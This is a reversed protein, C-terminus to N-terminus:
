AVEIGTFRNRLDHKQVKGMANRPLADVFIVAKPHKFRALQGDFAAIIEGATLSSGPVRAVVAIPVAGWRADPRGIVAAEAIGDIRDLVAELEAPYINEGGSIVVDHKRDKITIDGAADRYGIDGTRFWRDRFAAATAAPDGWYERALNAGRLWLEGPEGIARDRGQDDVIRVRTHLGARGTSGTTSGVNGPADAIRQYAAVPGSETLGYVQIVPVGRDHFVRILSVPVISSGTTLVRLSSLDTGTWEPHDRLAAITAPVLVLLSPRDAAIADLTAKPDFGRHVTVTAGVYLAPTTQINLGGVHFMPLVTLVHDASTLDHMHVSNLANHLVAQQTLVAGKPRGTTGSSYVLLVPDEPGGLPDVASADGRLDDPGILAGTVGDGALALAQARDHHAADAVLVKPRADGLIFRHEPPALRWNLPLFLAGLRACAFLLVLMEPANLGLYAVRDGHVVGHRRALVAAATEIRDGLDAYRIVAGEFRIAPKDPAAAAHTAIWRSLDETM